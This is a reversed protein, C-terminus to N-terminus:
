PQEQKSLNVTMGTKEFLELVSQYVEPDTGPTGIVEVLPQEDVLDRFRLGIFKELRGTEGALQSPLLTSSVTAFITKEPAVEGLSNYFEKKIQIDEAVTEIALDANGVAEGIHTSYALRSLAAKTQEQSSGLDNKYCESLERFGTRAQELLEENRDYITVDFGNYAVHFAIQTGLEGAGFLSIKKIEM